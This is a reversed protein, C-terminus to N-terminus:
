TPPFSFRRRTMPTVCSAAAYDDEGVYLTTGAYAVEHDHWRKGDWRAFRYRLDRGAKGKPVGAADKLVTYAIRPRGKRDLALSHVWAINNSDGAFIRTAEAPAIARPWFGSRGATAATSRGTATFLM